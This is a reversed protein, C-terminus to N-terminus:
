LAKLRALMEDAQDLYNQLQVTADLDRCKHLAAIALEPAEQKLHFVGLHLYQYPETPELAMSKDLYEKATVFEDLLTHLYGLNSYPNSFNPYIQICRNLQTKAKDYQETCIYEYGLNNLAYQNEKDLKLALQYEIIAPKSAAKMSYAYGRHVYDTSNLIAVKKLQDTYHIFEDYSNNYLSLTTCIRLLKENPKVQKSVYSLINAAVQFEENNICAVAEYYQTFAKRM